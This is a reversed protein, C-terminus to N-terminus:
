DKKVDPPQVAYPNQTLAGFVGRDALGALEDSSAAGSVWVSVDSKLWADMDGAKHDVVAMSIGDGQLTQPSLAASGTYLGGFGAGSAAKLVGLDDSRIIVSKQASHDEIGKKVVDFTPLDDVGPVFVTDSGFEDLAKDWTLTTGDGNRGTAAPIKATSFDADSTQKLPAKLGLDRQATQPDALVATGDGSLGVDVAPLYGFKVDERIAEVSNAPYVASGGGLAAVAPRQLSDVTLRQKPSFLSWGVVALVALVAIAGALLPANFKKRPAPVQAPQRPWSGDANLPEADHARGDASRPRDPEAPGSKRRDSKRNM